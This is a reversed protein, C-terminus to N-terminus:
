QRHCQPCAMQKTEIGDKLIYYDILEFGDLPCYKRVEPDVTYEADRPLNLTLKCKDCHLKSFAPVIKLMGRCKGCGSFLEATPQAQEFTGYSQGFYAEMKIINNKFYEYKQRFINIVSDLVSNFDAQGKAILDMNKEINSRLDPSVLEYDIDKIGQVLSNGLQTPVQKRMKSNITVYNRVVINNIHTAMSADTGIGNKEMLTILESETLYDPPQTQGEIQQLDKLYYSEGKKFEPIIKDSLRIWPTIETFGKNKVISGNIKFTHEGSAFQINTNAFKADQSITGLFHRCVFDYLKWDQGQGGKFVKNTPTIPPHDGQDVGWKPKNYCNMIGGAYNSFPLNAKSFSNLIGYFDFNKSYATSETRPYTIYGNLYLKEAVHMADNPGIGLLRSAQKLM